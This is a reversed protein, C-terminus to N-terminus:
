FINTTFVLTSGVTWNDYHRELINSERHEHMLNFELSLRDAILERALVFEQRAIWDRAVIPRRDYELYRVVFDAEASWGKLAGDFVKAWHLTLSPSHSSSVVDTASRERYRVIPTLAGFVGLSIAPSEVGLTLDDFRVILDGFGPAFVWRSGYSSKFKWGNLNYILSGSYIADDSAFGTKDYRDLSGSGFVVYTLNTAITGKLELKAGPNINLGEVQDRRTQAFNDNYSGPLTFQLNLSPRYPDEATAASGAAFICALGALAKSGVRGKLIGALLSKRRLM